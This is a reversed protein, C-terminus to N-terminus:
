NQNVQFDSADIKKEHEARILDLLNRNSDNLDEVKWYSDEGQVYISALVRRSESGLDVSFLFLNNGNGLVAIGTVPRGFHEQIAKRLEPGLAEVVTRQLAQDFSEGQRQFEEETKPKDAKWNTAILFAAVIVAIFASGLITHKDMKM